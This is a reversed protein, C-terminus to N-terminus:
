AKLLKSAEQRACEIRKRERENFRSFDLPQAILTMIDILKDGFLQMAMEKDFTYIFDPIAMEEKVILTVIQPIIVLPELKAADVLVYTFWRWAVLDFGSGGEVPTSYYIVFFYVSYIFEPDLAQILREPSDKFLSKAGEIVPERLEPHPKKLHVDSEDNSKWYNYLDNAFRFSKPLAKRIEQLLWDRHEQEDIPARIALRWLPIFGTCSDVNAKVGFKEIIIAFLSSALQRFDKGGMVLPAFQEFKPSLEERAFLAEPLSLGRFHVTNIDKKWNVLAHLTEQDRVELEGLEEINLRLWYDTPISNRVGQPVLGGGFYSKIVWMPFLFAVLKEGASVDWNAANTARSWKAQLREKRKDKDKQLGERELDRIERFNELLFDYAEPSAFRIVNAVLLDDFDIEGHLREWSHKTRRLITKLLRPTKVLRIIHDIPDNRVEVLLDSLEKSPFHGLRKSIEQETLTPIDDPFRQLRALRFVCIIKKFDESSIV